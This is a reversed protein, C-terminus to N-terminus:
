GLVVWCETRLQHCFQEELPGPCQTWGPGAPGLSVGGGKPFSSRGCPRERLHTVTQGWRIQSGLEVEEIENIGGVTRMEQHGEIKVVRRLLSINLLDDDCGLVGKERVEEKEGM